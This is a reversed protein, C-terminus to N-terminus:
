NWIRLINQNAYYQTKYTKLGHKSPGTVVDGSSSTLLYETKCCNCVAKTTEDNKISAFCSNQKDYPCYTEFAYYGSRYVIVGLYGARVRTKTQWDEVDVISFAEKGAYKPDSLNIYVEFRVNPITDDKGCCQLFFALFLLIIIFKMKNDFITKMEEFKVKLRKRFSKNRCFYFWKIIKNGKHCNFIEM